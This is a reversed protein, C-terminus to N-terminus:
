LRWVPRFRLHFNSRPDLIVLVICVTAHLAQLGRESAGVISGARHDAGLLVIEDGADSAVGGGALQQAAVPLRHGQGVLQRARAWDLGHLEHALVEDQEAVLAALEAHEVAVTWVAAGVECKAPELVAADAAGEVAPQEVGLAVAQLGGGLGGGALQAAADLLRGVRHDLLAPTTKAYMPSPSGGAKGSKSQKTAGSLWVKANL